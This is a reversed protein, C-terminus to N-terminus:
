ACQSFKVFYPLSKSFCSWLLLHQARVAVRVFCSFIFRSNSTFLLLSLIPVLQVFSPRFSLTYLYFCLFFLPSQFTTLYLLSKWSSTVLEVPFIKGNAGSVWAEVSCHAQVEGLAPVVFIWLALSSRADLYTQSQATNSFAELM